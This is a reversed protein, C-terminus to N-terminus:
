MFVAKLNLEEYLAKVQAEKEAEKYGYNEQLIQCQVLSAWQLCQVVLWSCKNDQTDTGIKGM